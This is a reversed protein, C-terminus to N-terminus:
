LINKKFEFFLEKTTSNCDSRGSPLIIIKFDKKAFEKIVKEYQFQAINYHSQLIFIDFKTTKDIKSEMNHLIEYEKFQRWFADKKWSQHSFLGMQTLQINKNRFKDKQSKGQRKFFRQLQYFNEDAMININPSKSAKAKSM